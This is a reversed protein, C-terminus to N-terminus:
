TGGGATGMGLSELPTYDIDYGFYRPGVLELGATTRWRSDCPAGVVAVRFGYRIEDTTIPRGSDLDLTIILDPVSVVVDGERVAVLYENQFQLELFAGTDADFGEVRASGKAFGAETRRAVDVVKGAFLLRGQLRDVIATVPDGHAARTDRLVRGLEQALGITGRVLTEKVQAGSLSYLAISATAGMDVTISRALRETWFNDIASILVTNGKEDALVMPSARIGYLTPTVMQLEPFARGMADADVLPINLQTAVGLPTTSNMGGAEISVTHTATRGLYRELTTFAKILEDGRPLKEAVVTPAGMMACCIVLASDDVESADVVKVPGHKRIAQQALLKGLYPSGGGGTGLVAAGVAIDDVDSEGVLRM